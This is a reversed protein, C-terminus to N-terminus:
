NGGQLCSFPKKGLNFMKLHQISGGSPSLEFLFTLSTTRTTFQFDAQCTDGPKKWKSFAHDKELIRCYACVRKM